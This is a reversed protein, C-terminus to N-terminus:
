MTFCRVAMLDMEKQSHGKGYMGTYTLYASLYEFVDLACEQLCVIDAKSQIIEKAIIQQRYDIAPYFNSCTVEKKGEFKEHLINYTMTRYKQQVEGTLLCRETKFRLPSIFHKPAHQIADFICEKYQFAILSAGSVDECSTSVMCKFKIRAGVDDDVPVYGRKVSLLVNDSKCRSHKIHESPHDLVREWCFKCSSPTKMPMVLKIIALLPYGVMAYKHSRLDAIEKPDKIIARTYSSTQKNMGVKANFITIELSGVMNFAEKNIMESVCDDKLVVLTDKSSDRLTLMLNIEQPMSVVESGPYRLGEKKHRRTAAKYKKGYLKLISKKLRSLFTSVKEDSQRNLNINM